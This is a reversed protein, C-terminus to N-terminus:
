QINCSPHVLICVSEMNLECLFINNFTNHTNECGNLYITKYNENGYEGIYM